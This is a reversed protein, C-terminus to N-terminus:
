WRGVYTSQNFRECSTDSIVESCMGHVARLSASMGITTSARCWVNDCSTLEVHAPRVARKNTVHARTFYLNTARCAGVWSRQQRSVMSRLAANGLAFSLRKLAGAQFDYSTIKLVQHRFARERLVPTSQLPPQVDAQRVAAFCRLFAAVTCARLLTRKQCECPWYAGVPHLRPRTRSSSTAPDV